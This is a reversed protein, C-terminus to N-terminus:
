KANGFNRIVDECGFLKAGTASMVFTLLVGVLFLLSFGVLLGQGKEKIDKMEAKGSSIFGWAWGAIYFAAGIFAMTRLLNFVKSLSKLAECMDGAGGAKDALAPFAVMIGILAFNIKNMIKKM